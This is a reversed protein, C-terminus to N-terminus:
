KTQKNLQKLLVSMKNKYKKKISYAEQIIEEYKKKLTKIEDISNAYEQMIKNQELQMMTVSDKHKDNLRKLMENEDTLLKNQKELNKVREHLQEIEKHHFALRKRNNNM